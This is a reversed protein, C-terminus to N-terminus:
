TFRLTLVQRTHDYRYIIIGQGDETTDEMVGINPNIDKVLSRTLKAVYDFSSKDYKKMQGSFAISTNQETSKDDRTQYAINILFEPLLGDVQNHLKVM